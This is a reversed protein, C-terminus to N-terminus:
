SVGSIVGKSRKDNRGLDLFGSANSKLVAAPDKSEAESCEPHRDFLYRLPYSDFRDRGAFRSSPPKSSRSPWWAGKVRRIASQRNGIASQNKQARCAIQRAATRSEGKRAHRRKQLSSDWRCTVVVLASAQKNRKKLRRLSRTSILGNAPTSSPISCNAM